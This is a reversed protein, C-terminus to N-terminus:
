LMVKDAIHAALQAPDMPFEVMVVVEQGKGPHDHIEVEGVIGELAKGGDFKKKMEEFVNSPFCGEVKLGTEFTGVLSSGPTNTISESAAKILEPTAPEFTLVAKGNSVGDTSSAWVAIHALLTTTM